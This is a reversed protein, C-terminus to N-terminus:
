SYKSYVVINNLNLAYNSKDHQLLGDLRTPSATVDINICMTCPGSWARDPLQTWAELPSNCVWYVFQNAGEKGREEIDPVPEGENAKEGEVVYYNRQTGKILGWLRM